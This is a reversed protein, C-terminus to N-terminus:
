EEVKLIEAIIAAELEKQQSATLYDSTRVVVTGVVKHSGSSLIGGDLAGLYNNRREAYEKTAYVEISGGASTGEDILADGTLHTFELKDSSFFVRSTYGGQKHLNGNPDNEETAAAITVIGDVKELCNIIYEESPNNVLSYKQIDMELAKKDENIKQMADEYSVEKLTENLATIEELKKPQEPIEIKVSEADEISTELAKILSEDLIRNNEIIINKSDLILKDLEIGMRDIRNVQYEYETIAAKLEDNQCGTFAICIVFLTMMISIIKKM